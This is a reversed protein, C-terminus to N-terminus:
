EDSTPRNIYGQRRTALSGEWTVVYGKKSGIELSLQVSTGSLKMESRQFLKLMIDPRSNLRSGAGESSPDVKSLFIMDNGPKNEHM